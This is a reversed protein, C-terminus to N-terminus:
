QGGARRLLARVQEAPDVTVPADTNAQATNQQRELAELFKAAPVAAKRGVLLVPVGLQRANDRVHRWPLGCVAECNRPGLLLAVPKIKPENDKM